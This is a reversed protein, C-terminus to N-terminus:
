KEMESTERDYLTRAVAQLDAERYLCLRGMRVPVLGLKVRLRRLSRPSCGLFMSAVKASVLRNGSALLPDRSGIADTDFEPITRRV